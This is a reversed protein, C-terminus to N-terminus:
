DLIGLLIVMMHFNLVSMSHEHLIITGLRHKYDNIEQKKECVYLLDYFLDQINKKGWKYKRQYDPINLKPVNSDKPSELLETIRKIELNTM